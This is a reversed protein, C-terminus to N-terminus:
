KKEIIGGIGLKQENKIVNVACFVITLLFIYFNVSFTITGYEFIFFRLLIIYLIKDFYDKYKKGLLFLFSKIYSLYYIIFGVIGYCSLIEIYNCHSYVEWGYGQVYALYYSFNDMGWGLLPKQLFMYFGLERYMGRDEVSSDAYSSSFIALLRDGYMKFLYENSFLIYIAILAVFALVFLYQMRKRLDKKLLLLGVLMVPVSILAARSGSLVTCSLCITSCILYRHNHYYDYFMISVITIIACIHGAFNRHQGVFEGMHITGWTSLPSTILYIVAFYSVSAIMSDFMVIVRGRDTLRIAICLSIILTRIMSAFLEEGDRQQYAWMQSMYVFLMFFGYWMSIDKLNVLRNYSIRNNILRYLSALIISLFIVFKLYPINHHALMVIFYLLFMYDIGEYKSIHDNIKDYIFM